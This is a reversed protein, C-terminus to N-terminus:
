QLVRGADTGPVPIGHAGIWGFKRWEALRHRESDSQHPDLDTCQRCGYPGQPCNITSDGKQVLDHGNPTFKVIPTWKQLSSRDAVMEMQHSNMRSTTWEGRTWQYALDRPAAPINMVAAHLWPRDQTHVVIAASVPWLFSAVCKVSPSPDRPPGVESRYYPNGPMQPSDWFRHDPFTHCAIM